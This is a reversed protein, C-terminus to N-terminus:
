PLRWAIELGVTPHDVGSGVLEIQAYDNANLDVNLNMNSGLSGVVPINVLTTPNDNKKINVSWNGTSRSKAFLGTIVANRPMLIGHNGVTTVGEIKLFRTGQNQGYYGAMYIQRNASIQKFRVPDLIYPVGDTWTVIGLSTSFNQIFRALLQNYRERHSENNMLDEFLTQLSIPPLPTENAM